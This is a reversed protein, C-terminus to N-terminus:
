KENISVAGEANMRVPVASAPRNVYAPTRIAVCRSKMIRAINVMDHQNGALVHYCLPDEAVYFGVHGGGPRHFVLVDGLSAHVAASGFQRWNDAWLPNAVPVKGARLTVIAAFLGCWPVADGSFGAVNIGANVLENRWAMIAPTNGPGPTEVTGLLKLGETITRPPDAIGALWHYASPFNSTPTTM